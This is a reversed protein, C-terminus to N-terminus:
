HSFHLCCVTAARESLNFSYILFSVFASLQRFFLSSVYFLNYMFINMKKIVTIEVKKLTKNSFYFPSNLLM